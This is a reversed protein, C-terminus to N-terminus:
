ASRIFGAFSQDGVQVLAHLAEVLQLLATFVIIWIDLLEGHVAQISQPRLM